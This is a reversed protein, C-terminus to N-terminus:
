YQNVSCYRTNISSSISHHRKKSNCNTTVIAPFYRTIIYETDYILYLGKILRGENIVRRPCWCWLGESIRHDSIAITSILFLRSVHRALKGSLIHLYANCYTHIIIKQRRHACAGAGRIANWLDIHIQCSRSPTEDFVAKRLFVVSLEKTNWSM